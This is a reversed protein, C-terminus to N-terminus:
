CCHRPWIYSEGLEIWNLPTHCQRGYLAEFPAKKLSEQYINNYSFEAWPLNKDWSSPYDMVCARLMYELIKNVRETQGDTQPHYASTHILHTGLSAHMERLLSCRIAVRSRFHDDEFSLASM